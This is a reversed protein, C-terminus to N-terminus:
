LTRAYLPLPCFRVDQIFIVPPLPEFITLKLLTSRGECVGYYRDGAEGGLFTKLLLGERMNKM